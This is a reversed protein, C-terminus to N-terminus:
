LVSQYTIAKCVARGLDEITWMTRREELLSDMGDLCLKGWKGNKRVSLFGRDSYSNIEKENGPKGEPIGIKTSVLFSNKSAGSLDNKLGSNIERGVVKPNKETSQSIIKNVFNKTEPLGEATIIRFTTTELLSTEVAEQDDVTTKLQQEFEGSNEHNGQVQYIQTFQNKIGTDTNINVLPTNEDEILAACRKEDEGSPCDRFGDCVQDPDVCFRSSGCVFQGDRCWDCHSEDSYDWCDAVGDCIKQQLMQARLFDACTCNAEDESNSCEGLMNCRGGSPLCKGDNCEFGECTEDITTITEETTTVIMKDLRDDAKNLVKTFIEVGDRSLTVHNGIKTVAPAEHDTAIDAYKKLEDVNIKSTEVFTTPIIQKTINKKKLGVDADMRVEAFQKLKELLAAREEATSIKRDFAQLTKLDIQDAFSRIEGTNKNIKANDQTDAHIIPPSTSNTIDFSLVVNNTRVKTSVKTSISTVVEVISKMSDDQSITEHNNTSDRAHNQVGFLNKLLEANENNISQNKESEKDVHIIKEKDNPRPRLRNTGLHSKTPPLTVIDKVINAKLTDNYTKKSAESSTENTWTWIFLQPGEKTEIELHTDENTPSSSNSPAIILKEHNNFSPHLIESYIETTSHILTPENDITQNHKNTKITSQLTEIPENLLPENLHSHMTVEEFVGSNIKDVPITHRFPKLTGPNEILAPKIGGNLDPTRYSTYVPSVLQGDDKKNNTTNNEDEDLALIDSFKNRTELDLEHDLVPEAVGIGSIEMPLPPETALLIPIEGIRDLVISPTVRQNNNPRPADISTLLIPIPDVPHRVAPLKSNQQGSSTALHLDFTEEPLQGSVEIEPEIKSALTEGVGPIKNKFKGNPRFNVMEQPVIRDHPFDVDEGDMPNLPITPLSLKHDESLPLSTFSIDDIGYEIRSEPDIPSQTGSPLLKLETNTYGPIIPRWPSEEFQPKPFDKHPENAQTAPAITSPSSLLEHIKTSQNISATTREVDENDLGAMKDTIIKNTTLITTEHKETSLEKKLEITASEIKTETKQSGTTNLKSAQYTGQITPINSFDIDAENPEIRTPKPRPKTNTMLTSNKSPRLLGNKTIMTNRQQSVPKQSRTANTDTNIGSAFYIINLLHCSM